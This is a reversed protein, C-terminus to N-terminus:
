LEQRRWQCPRLKSSLHQEADGFSNSVGSGDAHDAWSEPPSFFLHGAYNLTQLPFGGLWLYMNEAEM